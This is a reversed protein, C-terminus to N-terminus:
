APRMFPLHLETTANEQLRTKAIGAYHTDKEIGIYHRGELKAALCTTGSGCCPDLVVDGPNTYTRVLYRMMTIPKQTPHLRQGSNSNVSPFRIVTKPYKKRPDYDKALKCGRYHESDNKGHSFTRKIDGMRKMEEPTRDEMQPNYTIAGLGFVAIDEHGQMPRRKALFVGTAKKEWVWCYKFWKRNSAILDTTFPQSATLVIAGNPKLLRKWAAWLAAFPIVADWKCATTGYPLDSIVADVCAGPMTAMYEICEAAQVTDLAGGSWSASQQSLRDHIEVASICGSADAFVGTPTSDRPTILDPPTSM